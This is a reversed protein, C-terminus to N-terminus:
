KIKNCGNEKKNKSNRIRCKTARGTEMGDFATMIQM